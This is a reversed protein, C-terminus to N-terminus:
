PIGSSAVSVRMSQTFLTTPELGSEAKLSAVAKKFWGAAVVAGRISFTTIMTEFDDWLFMAM